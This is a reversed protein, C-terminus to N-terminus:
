INSYRNVIEKMQDSKANQHIKISFSILVDERSNTVSHSYKFYECKSLLKIFKLAALDHSNKNILYYHKEKIKTIKELCNKLNIHIFQNLDNKLYVFQINTDVLHAYAEFYISTFIFDQNTSLSFETQISITMVSQFSVIIQKLAQVKIHIQTNNKTHVYINM